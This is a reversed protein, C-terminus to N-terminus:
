FKRSLIHFGGNRGSVQEVDLIGSDSLLAIDSYISKREAKIGYEDLKSIIQSANLLHNEDTYKTLIEILYIIKLKQNENKM